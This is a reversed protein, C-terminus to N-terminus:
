ELINKCDITYGSKVYREWESEFYAIQNDCWGCDENYVLYVETDILLDVIEKPDAGNFNTYGEDIVGEKKVWSPTSKIISCVNIKFSLNDDFIDSPQPPNEQIYYFYYGIGGAILIFIPIIWYLKKSKKKKPQEDEM